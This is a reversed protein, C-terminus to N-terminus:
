RGNYMFLCHSQHHHLSSVDAGRRALELAIGAGIGKSGGTVIAIKGSLNMGATM